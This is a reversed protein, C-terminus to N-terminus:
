VVPRATYVVQAVFGDDDEYKVKITGDDYNFIDANSFLEQDFCEEFDTQVVEAILEQDILNSGNHTLIYVEVPSETDHCARAIIHKSM